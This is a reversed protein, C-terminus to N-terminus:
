TQMMTSALTHFQIIISSVQIGACIGKRKTPEGILNRQTCNVFEQSNKNLSHQNGCSLQTKPYDSNTPSYLQSIQDLSKSAYFLGRRTFPWPPIKRKKKIKLGQNSLPSNNNNKKFIELKFHVAGNRLPIFFNKVLQKQTFYSRHCLIQGQYIM